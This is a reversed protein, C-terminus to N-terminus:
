KKKGGITKWGTQMRASQDAFETKHKGGFVKEGIGNVLVGMLATIAVILLAVITLDMIYGGM